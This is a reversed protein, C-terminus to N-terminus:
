ADERCCPGTCSDTHPEAATVTGDDQRVPQSPSDAPLFPNTRDLWDSPVSSPQPNVSFRM